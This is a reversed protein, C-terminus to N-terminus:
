EGLIGKVWLLEEMAFTIYNARNKKALGHATRDKMINDVCNRLDMFHVPHFLKWGIRNKRLHMQINFIFGNITNPPFDKNDLHVVEDVFYCLTDCLERQNFKGLGKDLDCKQICLLPNSKLHESHWDRFVGLAYRIKRESKSAYSKTCIKKFRGQSSPM